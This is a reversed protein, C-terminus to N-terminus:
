SHQKYSLPVYVSVRLNCGIRADVGEFAVKPMFADLFFPIDAFVINGSATTLVTSILRSIENM